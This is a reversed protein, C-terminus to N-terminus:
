QNDEKRNPIKSDPECLHCKCKRFFGDHLQHSCAPCHGYHKVLENHTHTDLRKELHKLRKDIAIDTKM